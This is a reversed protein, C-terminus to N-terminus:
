IFYVLQHLFLLSIGKCEVFAFTKLFAFLHLMMCTILERIRILNYSVTKALLDKLHLKVYGLYFDKFNKFGSHHYAIQITLIESM